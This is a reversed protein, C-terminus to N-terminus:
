ELSYRQNRRYPGWGSIVYISQGVVAAGPYWSAPMPMPAVRGWTGTEPEFRYVLDTGSFSVDVGGLVYLGGALAVVASGFQQLPTDHTTWSNTAPDYVQLGYEDDGLYIKGGVTAAAVRVRGIPPGARSSWAGTSPDFVEHARPADGSLQDANEDNSGGIAHLRGGLVTLALDGRPTPMPPGVEVRGTAPDLVQLYGSGGRNEGTAPDIEWGGVVYLRGGLAAVGPRYVAHRLRGVRGWQDTRVDYAFITLSDRLDDGFGGAVYLVSDLAAAGASTRDGPMPTLSSWGGNPMPVLRYVGDEFDSLVMVLNYAVVLDDGEISATALWPGAQSSGDFDLSVSTSGRAYTGTFEIFGWRCCPSGPPKLVQLAFTGDQHLVYRSLVGPPDGPQAVRVYTLAGVPVPPLATATDPAPAAATTTFEVTLPAVLPVGGQSQAGTSVSLEYTSLPALPNTPVFRGSLIAEEEPEGVVSGPVEVGEHRLHLADPLSALDMPQTFVVRIVSNLPVDTRGAPPSTRVIMPQAFVPVVAYTTAGHGVRHFVTISLTDGTEAEVALPDFGGTTMPATTSAGSRLNRIDVGLGDPDTGPVMSVYAHGGVVAANSAAPTAISPSVLAASRPLDPRDTDPASPDSCGGVITLACILRGRLTMHPV